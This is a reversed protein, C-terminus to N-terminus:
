VMEMVSGILIEFRMLQSVCFLGKRPETPVWIQGEVKGGQDGRDPGNGLM